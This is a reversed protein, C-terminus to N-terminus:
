KEAIVLFHTSSGMMSEEKELLRVIRMIAERKNEDKWAEDLNRIMTAPGLVGRTDTNTFGATIIEDALEEPKHFYAMGMPKRTHVGTKVTNELMRYFDIDDIVPQYDYRCIYKLTTAYRSIGATFLKGGPKLLRYCEKLCLHREEREMIHYMPGLLLIADASNDPRPISRADAVEACKLFIGLERGMEQSMEINKESLDYLYVDYGLDTLYYSYEGYAGGIDYVVAKPKPLQECLVEKTRAFEVLGIGKYLRGKEKGTNYSELVDKDIMKM